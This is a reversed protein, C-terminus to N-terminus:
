RFRASRLELTMLEVNDKIRKIGIAEALWGHKLLPSTLKPLFYVIAARKNIESLTPYPLVISAMAQDQNKAMALGWMQILEGAHAGVITCGLISGSRSTVVKMFGDTQASRRPVTTTASLALSLHPDRRPIDRARGDETLGIQALEPDTYTVCPITAHDAEGAAPVACEQHRHRRSLQRSPHIAPRRDRRRDRLHAPELDQAAREGQHRRRYLRRRRARPRPEEVNPKRGTAVLLHTGKIITTEGDKAFARAVGHVSREVREVRGTNPYLVVETPSGSADRRAAAEPIRTPSSARRISSPSTPASCAIRRALELGIPGGGFVILHQIARQVDFITENTFYPVEDLGPIPPISPTSGTAIVFRRARVLVRGAEM